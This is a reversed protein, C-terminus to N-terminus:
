HMKPLVPERIRTERGNYGTRLAEKQARDHLLNDPVRFCCKIKGAKQSLLPYNKNRKWEATVRVAHYRGAGGDAREKYSLKQLRNLSLRLIRVGADRKEKVVEM